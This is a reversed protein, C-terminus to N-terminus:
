KLRCVYMYPHESYPLWWNKLFYHLPHKLWGPGEMSCVKASAGSGGYVWVVHSALGAGTNPTNGMLIFDGQKVVDMDRILQTQSGHWVILNHSSAYNYMTATNIYGGAWMRPYVTHLIYGVMGSCDAWGVVRPNQQPRRNAYEYNRGCLYYYQKLAKELKSKDTDKGAGSTGSDPHNGSRNVNLLDAFPYKIFIWNKYRKFHVGLFTFKSNNLYISKPLQIKEDLGSASDGGTGSGGDNMRAFPKGGCAKIMDIIGDYPNGFYYGGNAARSNWCCANGALTLQMYFSGTSYKPLGNYIRKGTANIPIFGTEPASQNLGFLKPNRGCSRILALDQELQQYPSGYRARNNIWGIGGTAGEQVVYGLFVTYAGSGLRRKILPIYTSEMNSKTLGFNNIIPPHHTFFYNLIKGESCGYSSSYPTYLFKKYQNDTYKKRLAM